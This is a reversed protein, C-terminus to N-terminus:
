GSNISSLWVAFIFNIM